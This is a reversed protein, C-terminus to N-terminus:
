QQPATSTSNERQGLQRHWQRMTTPEAPNEGHLYGIFTYVGEWQVLVQTDKEVHRLDLLEYRNEVLKSYGDAAVPEKVSYAQSVPPVILVVPLDATLASTPQGGFHLQTKTRDLVEVRLMSGLLGQEGGLWFAPMDRQEPTLAAIQAALDNFTFMPKPTPPQNNIWNVFGAPPEPRVLPKLNFHDRLLQFSDMKFHLSPYISYQKTLPNQDM